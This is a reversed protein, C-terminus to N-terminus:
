LGERYARLTKLARKLQLQLSSESRLQVLYPSGKFDPNLTQDRVILEILKHFQRSNLRRRQEMLQEALMCVADGTIRDDRNLISTRHTLQSLVEARDHTGERLVKHLIQNYLQLLSSLQKIHSSKIVAEHDHYTEALVEGLLNRADLRSDNSHLYLPILRLLRRMVFLVHQNRGDPVRFDGDHNKAYELRMFVNEFKGILGHYKQMLQESLAETFGMKRLLLLRRTRLFIRDFKKVAACQAFNEISRKRGKQLYDIMQAFTQVLYRAKRRQEKLNTSWREVDDFRYEHFCLGFQRISGYDIIGADALINDGDWEMWCFIYDSEFRAAAQAFNKVMAELFYTYPQEQPGIQWSGNNLQREI